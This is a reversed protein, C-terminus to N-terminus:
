IGKRKGKEERGEKRGGARKEERGEKRREKRGERWMHVADITPHCAREHAVPVLDITRCEVKLFNFSFHDGLCNTQM